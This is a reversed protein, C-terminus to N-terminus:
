HGYDDLRHAIRYPAGCKTSLFCRRKVKQHGAIMRHDRAMEAKGQGETIRIFVRSQNQGIFKQQIADSIREIITEAHLFYVERKTEFACLLLVIYSYCSCPRKAQSTDPCSPISLEPSLSGAKKCGFSM